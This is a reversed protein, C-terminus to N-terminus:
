AAELAYDFNIDIHTATTIDSGTIDVTVATGADNALYSAGAALVAAGSVGDRLQTNEALSAQAFAVLKVATSQTGLIDVTTVATVAGGIATATASVMRIKFGTIAAVLTVGANVQAITFRQRVNLVAGTLFSASGSPVVLRRNTGDFYAIVNGSTDLFELNGANWRSKVKTVPM